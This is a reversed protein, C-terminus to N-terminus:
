TAIRCTVTIRFSYYDILVDEASNVYRLISLGTLRSLYILWPKSNIFSDYRSGLSADLCKITRIDNM